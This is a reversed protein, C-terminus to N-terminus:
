VLSSLHWTEAIERRAPLCTEGVARWRSADVRAERSGARLVVSSVILRVLLGAEEDAYLVVVRVVGEHCTRHRLFALGDCRM